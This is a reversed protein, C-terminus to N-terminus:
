YCKSAYPGLCLVALLSGCKDGTWPKFILRDYLPHIVLRGAATKDTANTSTPFLYL